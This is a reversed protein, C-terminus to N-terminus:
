RQWHDMWATGRAPREIPSIDVYEISEARAGYPAQHVVQGQPGVVLSCGICKRGAWPGATMQGVNSVGVIWMSFDRAPNEYIDLWSYPERLNDHDADVAWASPSLIIDAGMYGLARSLVNGKAFGDACIMLGLSGLETHVVGLQNGQAYFPHGIELENLKRHKSLLNGHRDLIVAANYVQDGDKETLGSCVFIGNRCAAAALRQCPGGVPIPEACTLCSPHAWGLDMAEPLVALDARGEAAQAILEEARALNRQKEGGEVLM